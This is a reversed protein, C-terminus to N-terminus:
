GEQALRYGAAKLAVKEIKSLYAMAGDSWPDSSSGDNFRMADRERVFEPDNTRVEVQNATCGIQGRPRFPARLGVPLHTWLHTPFERLTTRLM